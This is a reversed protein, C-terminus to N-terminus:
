TNGATHTKGFKTGTPASCHRKEVPTITIHPRGELLDRCPLPSLLPQQPRRDGASHMKGSRSGITASYHRKIYRHSRYSPGVTDHIGAPFPVSFLSSLDHTGASHTKGFKAVTPASCHRKEVPTITIHPRGELLDRCPLPSLLPQQPRRNRHLADCVM